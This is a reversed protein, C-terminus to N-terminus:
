MLAVEEANLKATFEDPALYGLSQHPRYSHYKRLWADILQQQNAVDLAVGGWQIFEKELTGIFREVHPKDKPTRPCAFYHATPQNQLLEAFAGLNESGNDTIVAKPIGLKAVAKEWAIKGHKATISNGNSCDAGCLKLTDLSQGTATSQPLAGQYANEYEVV